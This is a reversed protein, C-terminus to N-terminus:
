VELRNLEQLVLVARLLRYLEELQDRTLSAVGEEEVFLTFKDKSPNDLAVDGIAVYSTKYM